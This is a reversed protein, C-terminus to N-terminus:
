YKQKTAGNSYGKENEDRIFNLVKMMLIIAIIMGSLYLFGGDWVWETILLGMQMYPTIMDM